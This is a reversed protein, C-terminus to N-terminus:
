TEFLHFVLRGNEFIASGIYKLKYNILSHGTGALRFYRLETKKTPDVLAWLCGVEFQNLYSLLVAGKPLELSFEDAFPVQYKYVTLM